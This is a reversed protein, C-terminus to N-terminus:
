FVNNCTHLCLLLKCSQASGKFMTCRAGADQSHTCYEVVPAHECQDLNTETGRCNLADLVIPTMLNKVQPVETLVKVDKDHM